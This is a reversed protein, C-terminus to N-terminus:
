KRHDQLITFNHMIQDYASTDKENDPDKQTSEDTQGCFWSNGM